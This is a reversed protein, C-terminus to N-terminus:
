YYTILDMGSLLESKDSNTSYSYYMVDNLNNIDFGNGNDSIKIIVNDNTESLIIKIKHNKKYHNSVYYKNYIATVSNKLIENFIYYLNSQIYLININKVFLKLILNMIIIDIM